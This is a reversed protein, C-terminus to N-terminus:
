RRRKKATNWFAYGIIIAAIVDVVIIIWNKETIGIYLVFAFAGVYTGILIVAALIRVPVPVKKNDVAEFSGDVILDFLIDLIFDILRDGRKEYICQRNQLEGASAQNIRHGSTNLM